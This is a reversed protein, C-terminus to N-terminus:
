NGGLKDAYSQDLRNQLVKLQKEIQQVCSNHYEVKEKLGEKLGDLIMKQIDDTIKIQELLATIKEEILEERIYRQNCNGKYGTFKLLLLSNVSAM